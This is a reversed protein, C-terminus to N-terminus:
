SFHGLCTQEQRFTQKMPRAFTRDLYLQQVPEYKLAKTFEGRLLLELM